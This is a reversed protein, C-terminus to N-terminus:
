APEAEAKGGRNVLWSLIETYTNMFRRDRM